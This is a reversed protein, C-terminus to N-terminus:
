KQPPEHRARAAAVTASLGPAQLDPDGALAALESWGFAGVFESRRLLMGFAAAAAAVRFDRSPHAALAGDVPRSLERADDGLPPKWRVRLTAVPAPDAAPAAVPVLEWLATM